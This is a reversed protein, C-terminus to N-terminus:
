AFLELTPCVVAQEVDNVGGLLGDVRKHLEVEGSTHVDLDLERLFGVIAVASTYLMSLSCTPLM